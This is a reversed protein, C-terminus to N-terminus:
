NHMNKNFSTEMLIQLKEDFLRSLIEKNKEAEFNKNEIILIDNKMKEVEKELSDIEIEREQAYKEEEAKKERAKDQKSRNLM